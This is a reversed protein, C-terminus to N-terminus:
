HGDLRELMPYESGIASQEFNGRILRIGARLLDTIVLRSSFWSELPNIVMMAALSQPDQRYGALERM